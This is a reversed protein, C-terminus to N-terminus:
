RLMVATRSASAVRASATVVLARPM